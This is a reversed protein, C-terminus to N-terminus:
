AKGTLRSAAQFAPSPKERVRQPMSGSFRGKTRLMSVQDDFHDLIKASQKRSM